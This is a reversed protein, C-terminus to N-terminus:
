AADALFYDTVILGEGAGGSRDKAIGLLTRNRLRFECSYPYNGQVSVVADQPGIVSYFTDKDVKRM